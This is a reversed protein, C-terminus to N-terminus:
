DEKKKGVVAMGCVATMALVAFTAGLSSGCGEPAPEEADDAPAEEQETEPEEEEEEIVPVFPDAAFENGPIYSLDNLKLAKVGADINAMEAKITSDEGNFNLITAENSDVVACETMKLQPGPTWGGLADYAAEAEANANAVYCYKVERYLQTNDSFGCLGGNYKTEKEYSRESYDFCNQMLLVSGEYVRLDGWMGGLWSTGTTTTAVLKGVNYSNSIYSISAQAGRVTAGFLGGIYNSEGSATLEGSNTCFDFNFGFAGRMYGIM